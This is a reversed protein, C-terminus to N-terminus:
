PQPHVKTPFSKHGNRFRSGCASCLTRPGAPGPCKGGSGQELVQCWDCKWQGGWCGRRHSGLGRISGFAKNCGDCVYKGDKDMLPPGAHGNRYRSGCASCLTGPGDPGPSRGGSESFSCACWQCGWNSDGARDKSIAGLPGGGGADGGRDKRAVWSRVMQLRRDVTDCVGSLVQRVAIEDPSFGEIWESELDPEYPVDMGAERMVWSGGVGMGGPSKVVGAHSKGAHNPDGTLRPPPPPPDAKRPRSAMKKQWKLNRGLLTKCFQNTGLKEHM